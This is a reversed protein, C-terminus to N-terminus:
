NKGGVSMLVIPKNALSVILIEPYSSIEYLNRSLIISAALDISMWMPTTMAPSRKSKTM